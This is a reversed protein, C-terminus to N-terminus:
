VHTRKVKGMRQEIAIRVRNCREMSAAITSAYNAIPFGGLAQLCKEMIDYHRSIQYTPTTKREVADDATAASVSTLYIINAQMVEVKNALDLMDNHIGTLMIDSDISAKRILARLQSALDIM